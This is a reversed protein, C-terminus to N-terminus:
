GVMHPYKTENQVHTNTLKINLYQDVSHLIGTIALDNKLEVTVQLLTLFLLGAAAKIHLVGLSGLRNSVSTVHKCAVAHVALQIGALGHLHSTCSLVVREVAVAADVAICHTFNTPQMQDFAECVNQISLM